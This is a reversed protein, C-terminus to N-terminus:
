DGIYKECHDASKNASSGLYTETFFNNMLAFRRYVSRFDALIIFDHLISNTSKDYQIGRKSLHTGFSTNIM